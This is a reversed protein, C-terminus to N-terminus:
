HSDYSLFVHMCVVLDEVREVCIDLLKSADKVLSRWSIILHDFQSLTLHHWFLEHNHIIDSYLEALDNFSPCEVIMNPPCALKWLFENELEQLSVLFAKFSFVEDCFQHKNKIDWQKEIEWQRYTSKLLDICSISNSLHKFTSNSKALDLLELSYFPMSQLDLGLQQGRQLIYQWIPHKVMQELLRLFEQIFQSFPHVQSGFWSLRLHYLNFDSETAQEITWFAAFLLMKNELELDFKAISRSDSVIVKPVKPFLIEHLGTMDMLCLRHDKVFRNPAIQYQHSAHQAGLFELHMCNQKVSAERSYYMFDRLTLPMPWGGPLCLPHAVSTDDSSIVSASLYTTLAFDIIKGGEVEGFSSLYVHEWSIQLSWIPSNGNLLLQQFLHVWRSLELYTIHVNLHLAENRAFIHAKAIATVLQSSPIGCLILFRKVDKLETDDDKYETVSDFVWYPQMMFIEVGRNRMARSVEGNAPNVTIFMRFNPHPHVVLPSGDVIGRENVM